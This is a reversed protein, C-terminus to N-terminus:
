RKPSIAGPNNRIFEILDDEDMEDLDDTAAPRAPKAVVRPRLTMTPVIPGDPLLVTAYIRTGAGRRNPYQASVDFLRAGAASLQVQLLECARDVDEPHAMLRLRIVGTPLGQDDKFMSTSGREWVGKRNDWIYGAEQLRDYLTRPTFRLKLLKATSEAAVYKATRRM